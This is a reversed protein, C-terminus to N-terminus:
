LLELLLKIKAVLPNDDLEDHECDRNHISAEFQSVCGDSFSVAFYYDLDEGNKSEKQCIKIIEEDLQHSLPLWIDDRTRDRVFDITLQGLYDLDHTQKKTKSSEFREWLVADGYQFILRLEQVRKDKALEIYQKTFM